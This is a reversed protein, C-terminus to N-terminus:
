DGRKWVGFIKFSDAIEPHQYMYNEADYAERELGIMAYAGKIDFGHGSRWIKYFEKAFQGFYILIFGVLGHKKFQKVHILEHVILPLYDRIRRAPNLALSTINPEHVILPLYDRIRKDTDLPPIYFYLNNGITTATAGILMGTVKRMLKWIWGGFVVYVDAITWGSLDFHPIGENILRNIGPVLDVLKIRKM